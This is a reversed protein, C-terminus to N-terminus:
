PRNTFRDYIWQLWKWTRTTGARLPKAPVVTGDDQRVYPM